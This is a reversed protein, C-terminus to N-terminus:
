MIFFTRINHYLFVQKSFTQFSFNLIDTHRPILPLLSTIEKEVQM